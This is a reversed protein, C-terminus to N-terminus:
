KELDDNESLHNFESFWLEAVENLYERKAGLNHIELKVLMGELQELSYDKKAKKEAAAMM